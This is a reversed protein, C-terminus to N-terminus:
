RTILNFICQKRDSIKFYGGLPPYIALVKVAKVDSQNTSISYKLETKVHM